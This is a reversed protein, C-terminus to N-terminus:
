REESYYLKYYKMGKNEDFGQEILQEGGHIKIDFNKDLKVTTLKSIKRIDVSEKKSLFREDFGIDHTCEYEERFVKFESAVMDAGFADSALTDITVEDKKMGEIVRNMMVAKDTKSINDPLSTIFSKCLEVANQTQTYADNLRKVQLFDEVWYKAEGRNTNDILSIVYGQERQTNFVLCGKDIKNINVGFEQIVEFSHEKRLIKLFSDKNESKFLGVANTMIGDILCNRFHVVYFEGCKINPHVCTRYLTKALCKSQELLSDLDDFISSIYNFVENLSLSSEHVFHHYENQKFHSLFFRKLDDRIKNDVILESNSLVLPEGNQKNGIQHLYVGGDIVTSDFYHM